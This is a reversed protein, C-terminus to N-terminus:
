FCVRWGEAGRAPRLVPPGHVGAPKGRRRKTGRASLAPQAAGSATVWGMPGKIVSAHRRYYEVKDSGTSVEVDPSRGGVSPYELWLTGNDDVRDGAAGFNLGLRKVVGTVQLRDGTGTYTWMETDADPVLALSTQVQYSCTCTRTYDPATLVGGAVILNNTCSSRFGGFNGTGGSRALDYFGAAGSRFMLMHESAAPTNCGYLRVWTWETAVGTIPDNHFVPAGTMLNAGGSEKLITNGHVMAAGKAQSDNWLLAGDAAHFARMGKAEDVLSDRAQRGSEILIDNERSYALWTGSVNQSTSWIRRGTALDLVYLTAPPGNLADTRNFPGPAPPRDVAYLRGGGACIGNHRFEQGATMTWAVKGTHREMVVLVRSGTSRVNSVVPRTAPQLSPAENPDIKPLVVTTLKPRPAIGGVLYDGEVNM